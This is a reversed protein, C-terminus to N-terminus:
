DRGATQPRSSGASPSPSPGASSLTGLLDEADSSNLRRYIRNVAETHGIFACVKAVPHGARLLRTIVTVRTCHASYPRAASPLGHKKFFNCWVAAASPATEILTTRRETRAQTILPLLEPHLAATHMKGGKLKFTIKMRETDIQELPVLTESLRVGQRMLVLFQEHMWRPEHGLAALIMQEHEATIEEKQKPARKRVEVERCPNGPAFGRRVAEAMLVRFFNFRLLATNHGVSKLTAGSTRWPVFGAADAYSVMRPTRLGRERFYALLDTLAYRSNLASKPRDVYRRALYDGAWAEWREPELVRPAAMERQTYEAEIRKAQRRAEPARTDVGTSRRVIRGTGPDRFNVWYFRSKPRVFVSAM